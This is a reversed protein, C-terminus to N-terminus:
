LSLRGAGRGGRASGACRGIRCPSNLSLFSLPLHHTIGDERRTGVARRPLLREPHRDAGAVGARKPVAVTRQLLRRDDSAPRGRDRGSVAQGARPDARRRRGAERQRLGGTADRKDPNAATPSVHCVTLTDKEVKYIGKLVKGAAPGDGPILDIERPSGAGDTRYAWTGNPRGKVTESIKGAEFAWGGDTEYAKGASERKAWDWKGALGTEPVVLPVEGSRATGTWYPMLALGGTDTNTETVKEGKFAATVKYAGPTLEAGPDVVDAYDVLRCPLTYGCGSALPVVFPDVRGAIPGVRREFTRSKGAADTITLRIATPFQRKGNALMMGLNVVTDDKGANEVTM